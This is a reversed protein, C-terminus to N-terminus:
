CVYPAFDSRVAAPMRFRDCGDNQMDYFLYKWQGNPKQKFIQSHGSNPGCKGSPAVIAWRPNSKSVGINICRYPGDWGVSAFFARKDAGKVERIRSDSAHASPAVFLAGVLGVSTALAAIVRMRRSRLGVERQSTM